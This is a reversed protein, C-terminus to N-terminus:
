LEQTMDALWTSMVLYKIRKSTEPSRSDRQKLLQILNSIDTLDQM